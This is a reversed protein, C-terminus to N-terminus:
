RATAVMSTAVSSRVGASITSAMARSSARSSVCHGVRDPDLDAGGPRVRDDDAAAQQNRVDDNLATLEERRHGRVAELIRERVREPQDDTGGTLRFSLAAGADSLLEKTSVLGKRWAVWGFVFTSAGAILTRDLDFFAAADRESPEADM